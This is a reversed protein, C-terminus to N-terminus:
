KRIHNTLSDLELNHKLIETQKKNKERKLLRHAQIFTNLDIKEFGGFLKKEDDSIEGNKGTYKYITIKKDKNSIFKFIRKMIKKYKIKFKPDHLDLNKQLIKTITEIEEKPIYEPEIIYKINSPIEIQYGMIISIEKEKIDKTEMEYIENQIDKLSKDKDFGVLNFHHIADDKYEEDFDSLNMGMYDELTKEYFPLLTYVDRVFLISRLKHLLEYNPSIKKSRKNMTKSTERLSKTNMPTLYESMDKFTNNDQNNLKSKSKKKIKNNM